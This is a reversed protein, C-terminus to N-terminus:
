CNNLFHYDADSIWLITFFYKKFYNIADGMYICGGCGSTLKKNINKSWLFCVFFHDWQTDCVKHPKNENVICAIRPNVLNNQFFRLCLRTDREKPNGNKGFSENGICTHIFEM